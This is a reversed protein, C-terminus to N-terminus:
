KMLLAIVIILIYVALFLGTGKLILRGYYKRWVDNGAEQIDETGDMPTAEIELPNQMLEFLERCEQCHAIHAEVIKRTEESCDGEIYLPLIDRIINCKM